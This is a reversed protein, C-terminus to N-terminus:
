HKRKNTRSRRKINKRHKKTTRSNKRRNGGKKSVSGVNGVNGYLSDLAMVNGYANEDYNPYPAYTNNSNNLAMPISFNLGNQMKSIMKNRSPLRPPPLQPLLPLRPPTNYYNAGLNTKKSKVSGSSNSGSSNSGSGSSSNSGSSVRVSYFDPAPNNSVNGYISQSSFANEYHSNNRSTM